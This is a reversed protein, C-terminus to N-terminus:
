SELITMMQIMGSVPQRELTLVWANITYTDHKLVEIHEPILIQQRQQWRDLAAQSRSPIHRVYLSNFIHLFRKKM